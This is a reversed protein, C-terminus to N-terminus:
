GLLRAGLERRITACGYLVDYSWNTQKFQRTVELRLTLKSEPDSISRVVSGLQNAMADAALPRTVFAIADRHFALNMVHTALPAAVAANDAVSAQLPPAINLTGAGTLASTVVYTQSHGAFTVIDGENFTGTGTDLVITSDGASHAGNVLFGSASGATHTAVNQDMVIGFGLRRTLKGELIAEGGVGFQANHFAQVALAAAEAATDLVLYRPDMPALQDNLIKRVQIADAPTGAGFPTTGATGHKGYFDKGLALLDSNIKNAISKVASEAQLPLYGEQVELMDKDTLGFDQYWWQDLPISVLTPAIDNAASPTLAPTVQRAVMENPVPITVTDGRQAAASEYARNVLFPMTINDRLVSLGRVLMQPIINSLANAM